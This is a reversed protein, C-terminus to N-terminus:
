GDIYSYTAKSGFRGFDMSKYNRLDKHEVCRVLRRRWDRIM